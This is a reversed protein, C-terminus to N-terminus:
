KILVMKKTEAFTGAELSYYYVGSALNSGDFEVRNSGAKYLEHISYVERGLVDYVTLRIDMDKPLDFSIHTKPNFPNPFNQYLIFEKPIESQIQKVSIPPYNFTTDTRVCYITYTPYLTYKYTGAFLIEGNQLNLISNLTLYSESLFVKEKKINGNSDIIIAKSNTSPYVLSDRTMTLIYRNNNIIELGLNREDRDSNFINNFVTDGNNNIRSMFTRVSSNQQSVVINGTILYQNNINVINLAATNNNQIRYKKIWCINGSDNLKLILINSTDELAEKNFGVTLFGNDNTEIISYLGNSYTPPLNMQWQLIGVSDIKYVYGNMTQIDIVAGCAVFGGDRTAKIDYCGGGTGYYKKWILNGSSDLKLSYSSDSFGTIVCGGDTSPAIALGREQYNSSILRTWITDGFRNIKLVIIQDPFYNKYGTVYFNGNPAKCVDTGFDRYQTVDYTRQWTISQAECNTIFLSCNVILLILLKRTFITECLAKAKKLMINEYIKKM